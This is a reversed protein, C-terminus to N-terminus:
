YGHEKRYAHRIATQIEFPLAALDIVVEHEHVSQLASAPSRTNMVVSPWKAVVM